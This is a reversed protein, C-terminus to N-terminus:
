HITPDARTLALAEEIEWDLARERLSTRVSDGVLLAGALVATGIGAGVGAAAHARWHHRLGRRVLTWFGFRSM